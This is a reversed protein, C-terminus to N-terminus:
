LAEGLDDEFLAIAMEKLQRKDIKGRDTQPLKVLSEIKTPVCYYPLRSNIEQKFLKYDIQEGAYFAVLHQNNYKIAVARIVGEVQEIAGSVADLEVRFGKVKVQDDARGFHELDGFENWRGLDGTRFMKRGSIFPDDRYRFENLEDNNIYGQTVCDGGAWMMGVEGIPLPQLNDDLIYVSNNVTPKGISLPKHAQYKGITNVITTETPGCSNYFDCFESWKKALPEPCPEGAVIATKVHSLKDTELTALISPTSIIVDAQECAAQISQGRIILEGGNCLCAWIEWASMDFSISLIQSVKTGAKIGLNGPETLLINAINRHSVAVGNPKGTTGSTFLIMATQNGNNINAAFPTLPQPNHLFTSLNLVNCDLAKELPQYYDSLTLVWNINAKNVVFQMQSLPAVKAHQPVYAAGLKFCAVLAIIMEINRHLFIGVADGPLVGQQQLHAALVLAHQDLQRYSISQGEYRVATAHPQKIVQHAFAHGLHDTELVAQEAFSLGAFTHEPIRCLSKM